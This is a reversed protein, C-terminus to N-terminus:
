TDDLKLRKWTCKGLNERKLGIKIRNTDKVRYVVSYKGVADRNQRIYDIVSRDFLSWVTFLRQRLIGLLFFM